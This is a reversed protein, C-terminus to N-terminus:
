PLQSVGGLVRQLGPQCFEFPILIKASAILPYFPLVGILLLLPCYIM